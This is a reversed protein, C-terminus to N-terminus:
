EEESEWYRIINPNVKSEEDLDRRREYEMIIDYEIMNMERMCTECAGEKHYMNCMQIASSWSTHTTDEPWGGLARLHKTVWASKNPLRKWVSKVEDPLSITALFTM